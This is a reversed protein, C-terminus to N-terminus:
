LKYDTMFNLDASQALDWAQVSSHNGRLYARRAYNQIPDGDM